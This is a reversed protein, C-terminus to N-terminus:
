HVPSVRRHDPLMENAVACFIRSAGIEGGSTRRDTSGERMERRSGHGTRGADFGVGAGRDGGRRPM